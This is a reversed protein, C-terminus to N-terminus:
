QQIYRQALTLIENYDLMKDASEERWSIQRLHLWCKDVIEFTRRTDNGPIFEKKTNLDILCTQAENITIRDIHKFITNYNSGGTDLFISGDPGAHYPFFNMHHNAVHDYRYFSFGPWLYWFNNKKTRIIGWFNSPMNSIIQTEKLPFIDHDIFGFYIPKYKQIINKYCWNLALGHSGSARVKTLINHPLQVYSISNQACWNRIENSIGTDDSNDAVVYDFQDRLNQKLYAYQTRIIHANNFAVTILIFNSREFLIKKYRPQAYVHVLLLRYLLNSAKKKLARFYM